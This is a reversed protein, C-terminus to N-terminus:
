LVEKKIHSWYGKYVDSLFERVDRGRDMRLVKRVLERAEGLNSQRVIEKVEPIAKPNMSFSDLGMGLLVPTALPDSAMEGCLGVSIGHGHGAEITEYILRLVAPHFPDFLYAIRDNGRDVAITYQVLDNTGISFFDAERALRDATLAASPVEIMAGVPCDPDFEAGEQRLQAKAKEVMERAELFEEVGTVMPFMIRVNGLRSARLIARLQALFVDRHRLSVRIARWGLFPNAEPPASLGLKDGGLDLTRIVVPRPAMKRAVEWYTRFQEEETPLHPHVLYLFETRYLGIGEAGSELCLSVEEPFEINAELSVRHGDMTEAPLDKLASLRAEQEILSQRRKQYTELAEQDPNLHVVGRYGDVVILDGPEVLDTAEQVGVVAPVGLARALIAAHSTSGGLETVLGLVHQRHMHVTDSVTLNRAIVIAESELHALSPSPEGMLRSAVRRQIDLVDYMRERLYPDQSAKLAKVVKRLTRFFAFEANKHERRIRDVTEDIIAQDEVMAIHADFIKAPEEGLEKSIRKRAERLEGRVEEIVELFKDVEEEVKEAPITREEIWFDEKEYLFAHGVAIGPSAAIGQLILENRM